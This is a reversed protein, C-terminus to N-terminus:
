RTPPRWNLLIAIPPTPADERTIILFRQGDPAVVYTPGDLHEITQPLRAAFLSVPAGPEAGTPSAQLRIPVAMLTGDLAM